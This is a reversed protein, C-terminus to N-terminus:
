CTGGEWPWPQTAWCWHNNVQATDITLPGYQDAYARLAQKRMEKYHNFYNLAEEDDPHTDLYLIIDNVAFSVMNIWQMLQKQSMQQNMM